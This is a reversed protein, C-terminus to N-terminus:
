LRYYDYETNWTNKKKKIKRKGFNEINKFNIIELNNIFPLKNLNVENLHNEIIDENNITLEKINNFGHLLKPNVECNLTLKTYSSRNKITLLESPKNIILEKM